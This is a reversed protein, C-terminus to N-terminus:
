ARAGRRHAEPYLGALGESSAACIGRETVLGTVLRAPTVDFAPNVASSGKAAIAVTAVEGSPLRGSMKLVESKDREEIPIKAGDALTWDITSYPLTVYFPVGTDTAALAKLYTGIKNAVDGNAAVRDTGTIVLDILGGAMMSATMTDAILTVDIGARSLEWSTLRAGQLLPRTEDAYVRFPTGREHALYMPATATGIGSTALAGANCHTLVGAGPRILDLGAGGIGLCLQQDEAHIAEAEAVLAAYLEATGATESRVARAMMRRLAWGLNVATPQASDLYAAQRGIEDRFDAVPRDRFPKLAVCLGYGAAVGIAPAGRVKLRRIADFVAEATATREMVAEGPLRTQDLLFLEGGRWELARPLSALLPRNTM